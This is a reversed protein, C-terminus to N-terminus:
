ARSRVWKAQSVSSKQRQCRGISLANVPMHITLDANWVEQCNGVHKPSAKILESESSAAAEIAATSLAMVDRMDVRAKVLWSTGVSVM